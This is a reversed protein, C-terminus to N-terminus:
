RPGWRTRLTKGIRPLLLDNASIPSTCGGWMLAPWAEYDMSASVPLETLIRELLARLEPNHFDVKGGQAQQELFFRKLVENVLNEQDLSIDVLQYGM